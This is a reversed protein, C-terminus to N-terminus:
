DVICFHKAVSTDVPCNTVNSKSSICNAREYDQGKDNGFEDVMFKLLLDM